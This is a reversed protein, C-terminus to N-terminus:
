VYMYGFFVSLILNINFFIYIALTIGVVSKSKTFSSYARCLVDLKKVGKLIVATFLLAFIM